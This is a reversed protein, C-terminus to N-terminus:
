AKLFQEDNILILIGEDIFIISANKNSLQEDKDSTNSGDDISDILFLANVPHVENFCILIGDVTFYIALLENGVSVFIVKM